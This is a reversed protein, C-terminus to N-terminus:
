GASRAFFRRSAAAKRPPKIMCSLKYLFDFKIKGGRRGVFSRQRSFVVDARTFHHVVCYCYLFPLRRDIGSLRGAVYGFPASLLLNCAGFISISRARNNPDMHKALLAERRPYIMAMACSNLLVYLAIVGISGPPCLVLLLQCVILLLVGTALPPKLRLRDMLRQLAFLFTIQVLATIIPFATIWQESIGLVSNMYLASFSTTIMSTVSLLMTIPLLFATARKQLLSKATQVSETLMARLSMGRVDEMRKRGPKTEKCFRWTIMSKFLMTVSFLAYIGRAVPVLSFQRILLGSLPAIFVTVLGGIAIWTFMHMIDEQKADEVLLCIWASQNVQEFCNLVVAVLFFWYNGSIAWVACALSWGFLDGLMTTRHRGLKDAMIGGGIAFFVQCVLGASLLIGLQVDTVGLAVMYLTALPAILNYPIGWLPEILILIKVNGKLRRLTAVM